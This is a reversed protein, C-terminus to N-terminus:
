RVKLFWLEQESISLFIDSNYSDKLSLVAKCLLVYFQGIQKTFAILSSYGM